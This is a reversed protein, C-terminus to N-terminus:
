TLTWQHRRQRAVGASAVLPSYTLPFVAVLGRSGDVYADFQNIRGIVGMLGHGGVQTGPLLQKCTQPLELVERERMGTVLLLEPQQQQQQQQVHEQPQQGDRGSQHNSPASVAETASPVVDRDDPAVAPTPTPPPHPAGSAAGDRVTDLFTKLLLGRGHLEVQM